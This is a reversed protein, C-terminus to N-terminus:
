YKLGADLGSQRQYGSELVVGNQHAVYDGFTEGDPALIVKVWDDGLELDLAPTNTRGGVILELSEGALLTYDDGWLEVWVVRPRKTDNRLSLRVANEGMAALDLYKL